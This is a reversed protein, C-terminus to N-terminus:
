KQRGVTKCQEKYMELATINKRSLLAEAGNTVILLEANQVQLHKKDAPLLENLCFLESQYGDEEFLTAAKRLETGSLGKPAMTGYKEMGPHHEACDGYTTTITSSGVLKPIM